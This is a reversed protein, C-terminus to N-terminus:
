SETRSSWSPPSEAPTAEPKSGEPPFGLKMNPFTQTLSIDAVTKSLNRQSDQLIRLHAHLQNAFAITCM